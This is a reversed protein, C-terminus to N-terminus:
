PSSEREAIHRALATLGEVDRDDPTTRRRLHRALAGFALDYIATAAEAGVGGAGAIQDILLDESRRQEEPFLEALRDAHAVFPRTRRAATDDRAQALVGGVWTGIRSSQDPCSAMQEDLHEVLTRRGEDLMLLLLEDKSGVHRYFVQNSLGAEALIARVSPDLSGTEGVVTFAAEVLARLERAYTEARGRVREESRRRALSESRHERDLLVM